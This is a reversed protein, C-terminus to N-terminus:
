QFLEAKEKIEKITLNWWQTNKIKEQKEKTFRDKLKKAPNGAWIEYQKIKTNQTILSNAGIVAGDEITTNPLITTNAGVWVDNGIQIDGGLEKKNNEKEKTKTNNLYQSIPYTTISNIDHDNASVIFCNRAISCYKGISITHKESALLETNNNIYSYNDIHVKGTLYTNNLLQVNKGFTILKKFYDKKNIVVRRFIKLSPNQLKVYLNFLFDKIAFMM